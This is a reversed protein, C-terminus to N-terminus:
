CRHDNEMFIWTADTGMDGTGYSDVRTCSARASPVKPSSPVDSVPHGVDTSEGSTSPKRSSQSGSCVRDTLPLTGRLAKGRKLHNGM